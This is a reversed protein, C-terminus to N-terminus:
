LGTMSGLIVAVLLVWGIASAGYLLIKGIMMM